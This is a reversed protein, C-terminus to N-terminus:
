KRKFYDDQFNFRAPTSAEASNPPKSQDRESKVVVFRRYKYLIAPQQQITVIDCNAAHQVAGIWENQDKNACISNFAATGISLADLPSTTRCQNRVWSKIAEVAATPLPPAAMLSIEGDAILRLLNQYIFGESAYLSLPDRGKYAHNALYGLCTPSIFAMWLPHEHLKRILKITGFYDDIFASPYFTVVGGIPYMEKVGWMERPMTSDTGYSYFRIDLSTWRKCSLSSRHFTRISGVHIFVLRLRLEKKPDQHKGEQAQCENLIAKLMQSEIPESEGKESEHHIAYLRRASTLWAFLDPPFKLARFAFHFKFNRRLTPAYDFACGEQARTGDAITSALDTKAPILDSLDLRPDQQYAAPILKWSHLAVILSDTASTIEPPAELQKLLSGFTPSLIM